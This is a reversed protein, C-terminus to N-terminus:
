KPIDERNIVKTRRTTSLLNAITFIFSATLNVEEYEEGHDERIIVKGDEKIEAKINKNNLDEITMPSHYHRYVKGPPPAPRENRRNNFAM